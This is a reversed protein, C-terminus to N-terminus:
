VSIVELKIVLQGFVTMHEALLNLSGVLDKDGVVTVITLITVRGTDGNLQRM